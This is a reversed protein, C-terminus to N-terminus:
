IIDCDSIPASNRKCLENIELNTKISLLVRQHTQVAPPLVVHQHVLGVVDPLAGGALHYVGVRHPVLGQGWVGPCEDDGVRAQGDQPQVGPLLHGAGDEVEHDLVLEARVVVPGDTILHLM